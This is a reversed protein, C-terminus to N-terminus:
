IHTGNGYLRQIEGEVTKLIDNRVTIFDKETIFMYVSIIGEVEMTIKKMEVLYHPEHVERLCRGIDMLSPKRKKFFAVNLAHSFRLFSPLNELPLYKAMILDNNLLKLLLRFFIRRQRKFYDRRAKPFEDVKLFMDEAWCSELEKILTERRTRKKKKECIQHLDDAELFFPIFQTEHDQDSSSSCAITTSVDASPPFYDERLWESGISACYGTGDSAYSSDKNKWMM